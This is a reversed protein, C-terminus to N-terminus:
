IVEKEEKPIGAETQKLLYEVTDWLKKNEEQLDKMTCIKTKNAEKNLSNKEEETLEILKSDQLKYNGVINVNELDLDTEIIVGDELPIHVQSLCVGYSTIVKNKDVLICIDM